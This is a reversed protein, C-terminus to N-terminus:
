EWGPNQKLAPNLTIENTPICQLYDRKENFEYGNPAKSAHPDLLGNSDVPIDITNNWESSKLPYGHM